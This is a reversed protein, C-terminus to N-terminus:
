GAAFIYTAGEDLGLFLGSGNDAKQATPCPAVINWPVRGWVHILVYLLFTLLFSSFSGVLVKEMLPSSDDMAMIFLVIKFGGIEKQVRLYGGSRWLGFACVILKESIVASAALRGTVQIFVAFFDHIRNRCPVPCKLSTRWCGTESGFLRGSASKGSLGYASCYGPLIVSM